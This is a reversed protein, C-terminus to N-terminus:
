SKYKRNGRSFRYWRIVYDFLVLAIAGLILEAGQLTTPIGLQQWDIQQNSGTLFLILEIAILILVIFGWIM